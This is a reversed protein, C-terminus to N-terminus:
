SRGAIGVMYSIIHSLHSYSHYICFLSYIEQTPCALLRIHHSTHSCTDISCYMALVTVYTSALIAYEFICLSELTPMYLYTMRCAICLTLHLDKNTRESADFAAQVKPLHDEAEKLEVALLKVPPPLHDGDAEPLPPEGVVHHQLLQLAPRDLPQMHLVDLYAKLIPLISSYPLLPHTLILYM